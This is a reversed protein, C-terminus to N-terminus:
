EEELFLKKGCWPCFKFEPATYKPGAIKVACFLSQKILQEIGEIWKKCDCKM